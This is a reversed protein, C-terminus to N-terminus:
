CGAQLYLDFTLEGIIYYWLKDGDADTAAVICVLRGVSDNEMLRVPTSFNTVFYPISTSTSPLDVVTIIVRTPARHPPRGKDVARVQVCVSIGDIM